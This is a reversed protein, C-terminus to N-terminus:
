DEMRELRVAGTLKETAIVGQESYYRGDRDIKYLLVWGEVDDAAFCRRSMEVGDLYARYHIAEQLNERIDVRM